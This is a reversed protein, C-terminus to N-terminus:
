ECKIPLPFLLLLSSDIFNFRSKKKHLIECMKPSKIKRSIIVFYLSVYFFVTCIFLLFVERLGGFRKIRKRLVYLGVM